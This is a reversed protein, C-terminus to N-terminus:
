AAVDKAGLIAPYNVAAQFTGDGNGLLINVQGPASQSAAGTIALDAKGDGNFDGIAVGRPGSTVPLQGALALTGAPRATVNAVVLNSARAADNTDGEYYATLLHQGPLLSTTTLTAAAGSVTTTGLIASGDYFTVSGTAGGTFASLVVPQGYTSALPAVTLSPLLFIVDSATADPSGGGSVTVQNTFPTAASPSAGLTVAISPYSNGPALVDSRTCQVPFSTCTWGSGAMAFSSWGAPLSETVTVAGGTPGASAANSVTVTYAISTQGRYPTGSHTKVISLAPAATGSNNTLFAAVARSYATAVVQYSGSIGNA